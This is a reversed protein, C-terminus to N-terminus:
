RAAAMHNAACGAVERSKMMQRNSGKTPKKRKFPAAQIRVKPPPQQQDPCDMPRGYQRKRQGYPPNSAMTPRKAILGTCIVGSSSSSQPSHASLQGNPAIRFCAHPGRCSGPRRGSSRRNDSAVISSPHSRASQYQSGSLTEPVVNCCGVPLSNCSHQMGFDVFGIARANVSTVSVTAMAARATSQAASTRLTGIFQRLTQTQSFVGSTFIRRAASANCASTSRCVAPENARPRRCRTAPIM